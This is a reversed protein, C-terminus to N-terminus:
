GRTKAPPMRNIRAKLAPAITTKEPINDFFRVVIFSCSKIHHPEIAGSYLKM